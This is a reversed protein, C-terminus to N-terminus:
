LAEALKMARELVDRVPIRVGKTPYGGRACEVFAKRTLAEAHLARMVETPLAVVVKHGIVVAWYDAECVAIGSPQWQEDRLCAHEVYIHGTHIAKEDTKVETRGDVLGAIVDAVLEEGSRGIARDIDWRPEYGDALRDFTTM